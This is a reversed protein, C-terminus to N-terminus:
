EEHKKTNLSCQEHVNCTRFPVLSRTGPCWFAPAGAKKQSSKRIKQFPALTQFKLNQMTGLQQMKSVTKLSNKTKARPGKRRM